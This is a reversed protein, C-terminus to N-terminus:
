NGTMKPRLPIMPHITKIKKIESDQSSDRVLMIKYIPIKYM